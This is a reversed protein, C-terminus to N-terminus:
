LTKGKLKLLRPGTSCFKLPNIGYRLLSGHKNSHTV